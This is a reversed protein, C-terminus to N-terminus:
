TMVLLWYFHSFTETPMFIIVGSPIFTVQIPMLVNRIVLDKYILNKCMCLAGTHHNPLKINTMTMAFYPTYLSPLETRYNAIATTMSVYHTCIGHRTYQWSLSAPIAEALLTWVTLVTVTYNSVDTTMTCPSWVPVLTVLSLWIMNM